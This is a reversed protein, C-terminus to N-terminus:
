VFINLLASIKSNPFLELALKQYWVVPVLEHLM